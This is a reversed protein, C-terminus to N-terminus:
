ETGLQIKDAGGKKIADLISIFKEYPESKDVNITVIKEKFHGSGSLEKLQNITVEEKNLFLTGGKKLSITLSKDIPSSGNESEPVDIEM